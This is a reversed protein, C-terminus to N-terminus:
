EGLPKFIYRTKKGCESCKVKKSPSYRYLKWKEGDIYVYGPVGLGIRKKPIEFQHKHACEACLKKKKM